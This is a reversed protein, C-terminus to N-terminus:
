WLTVEDKNIGVSFCHAKLTTLSEYAALIAKDDKRVLQYYPHALNTYVYEIFYRTKTQQALQTTTM